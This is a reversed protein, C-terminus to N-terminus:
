CRNSLMLWPAAPYVAALCPTTPSMPWKAVDSAAAYFDRFALERLYAQADKGRGLDAALTRPHITGFKLHASMRSTGPLDPRNRNDAYGSLGTNLFQEWQRRAAREGAPLELAVGPDPIDAIGPRGPVDAPDIWRAAGKGSAAPPRWGHRHWADYLPTFVKNPTGTM